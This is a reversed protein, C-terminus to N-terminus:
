EKDRLEVLALNEYEQIASHLQTLVVKAQELTLDACAIMKGECTLNMGIKGCEWFCFFEIKDGVGDIMRMGKSM